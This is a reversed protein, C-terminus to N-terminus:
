GCVGPKKVLAAATTVQYIPQTPTKMVLTWGSPSNGIRSWTLTLPCDPKATVNAVTPGDVPHMIRVSVNTFGAQELSTVQDAEAGNNMYNSIGNAIFGSVIVAVVAGVILWYLLIKDKKTAVRRHTRMPTTISM